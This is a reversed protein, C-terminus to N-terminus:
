VVEALSNKLAENDEVKGVKVVIKRDDSDGTSLLSLLEVGQDNLVSIIKKMDEPKRCPLTIWFGGQGFNLLDSFEEFLKGPTLVGVLKRESDVVPLVMLGYEKIISVAKDITDTEEAHLTSRSLFGDIPKDGPQDKISDYTLFGVLKDEDDVVFIIRFSNEEMLERTEEISKGERASAPDEKLFERVLM